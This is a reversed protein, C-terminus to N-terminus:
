SSLPPRSRPMPRHKPSRPAAAWDPLSAVAHRKASAAFRIYRLTTEFDRHRALEQVIPAPAVRALATVYAGRSDHFRRSRELGARRL